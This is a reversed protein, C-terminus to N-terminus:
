GLLFWLMVYPRLFVSPVDSREADEAYDADEADRM